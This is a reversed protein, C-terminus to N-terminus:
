DKEWRRSLRGGHQVMELNEKKARKILRKRMPKPYFNVFVNAFNCRKKVIGAQGLVDYAAAACRMGFFAYDYPTSALYGTKLKQIATYQSDSVPFTISTFKCGATDRFFGAASETVYASQRKGKHAFIHVPFHAPVFSFITSDIQLSVHGGHIGGFYKSESGKYGRAPKSGYYFHITVTKSLSDKAPSLMSGTSSKESSLKELERATVPNYHATASCINTNFVPHKENKSAFVIYKMGIFFHFGCDADSIGTNVHVLTDSHLGKYSKQVSFAYQMRHYSRKSSSDYVSIKESAIVRGSFIVDFSKYASETTWDYACTCAFIKGCFLLLIFLIPRMKM